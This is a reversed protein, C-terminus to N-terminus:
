HSCPPQYASSRRSTWRAERYNWYRTGTPPRGGPRCGLAVLLRAPDGGRDPTFVAALRAARRASVGGQRGAGDVPVGFGFLFTIAVAIRLPAFLMHTVRNGTTM